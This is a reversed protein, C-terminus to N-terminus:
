EIKEFVYGFDYLGIYTANSFVARDETLEVLRYNNGECRTFTGSVGDSNTINEISCNELSLSVVILSADDSQYPVYRFSGEFREADSFTAFCRQNGLEIDIVNRESYSLPAHFTYVDDAVCASNIFIPNERYEEPLIVETLRWKKETAGHLMVLDAATFDTAVVKDVDDELNDNSSCGTIVLLLM